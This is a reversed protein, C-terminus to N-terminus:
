RSRVRALTYQAFVSHLHLQDPTPAGSFALWLDLGPAYLVEASVPFLDFEIGDGDGQRLRLGQAAPVLTIPAVGPASYRGALASLNNRDLRLPRVTPAPDAARGALAAILERALAVRRLPPLSSNSVYVVSENRARDWYVFSYFANLDGTYYCRERPADCYWSLATLPANQGAVQIYAQGLASVSAPLASGAAHGRAWRSLDRASFYLNSGGAFGEMDFVDFPTWAKSRWRYGLTRVGQWDALRAPRVFSADMKLPAFFRQALFDAYPVGSAKEILLAGVDFGLSSYEFRTGPKFRPPQAQQKIVALLDQTSRVQDKKFHADFSEYDAPLGNSHSLLQRVTTQAHPYAPLVHQVRDDIAIRGEHVLWWLGAATFTKALSAGDSPTDPTFDLDAAHNAKGVGRALVEQGQRTLVLAGSFERATILPALWADVRPGLDAPAAVANVPNATMGSALLM